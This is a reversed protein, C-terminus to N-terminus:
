ARRIETYLPSLDDEAITSFRSPKIILDGEYTGTGRQAYEIAREDFPEIKIVEQTKYRRGFIDRLMGPGALKNLSVQMDVLTLEGDDLSLFYQAQPLGILQMMKIFLDLDTKTFKLCASVKEDDNDELDLPNGIWDGYMVVVADEKPERRVLVTIGDQRYWKLVYMLHDRILPLTRELQLM